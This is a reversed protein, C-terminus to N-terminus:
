PLADLRIEAFGWRREGSGAQVLRFLRAPTPELLLVEAFGGSGDQEEIPARGPASAIRRWHEGDDSAMVHLDRARRLPHFGLLLTIRGLARPSPQEIQFWQGPRQPGM